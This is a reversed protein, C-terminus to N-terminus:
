QTQEDHSFLFQQLFRMGNAFFRLKHFAVRSSVRNIRWKYIVNRVVGTAHSDVLRLISRVKFASRQLCLTKWKSCWVRVLTCIRNPALAARATVFQTNSANFTTEEHMDRYLFHLGTRVFHAATDCRRGYLQRAAALGWILRRQWGLKTVRSVSAFKWRRASLFLLRLKLRQAPSQPPAHSPTADKKNM